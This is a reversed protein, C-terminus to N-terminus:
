PKRWERELISYWAVDCYCGKIWESSRLTGEYQMGCKEMVRGSAPNRIDHRAEVRQMGVKDFLFDIVARAALTTYGKGWWSRGICYGIQARASRTDSFVVSISGIPKGLERPVIAWQYFDKNKYSSCWLQLVQRTQEPSEHPEWMLYRCVEPDSAWNAFVARDDDPSFRRLLLGPATLKKTGLHRVSADEEKGGQITKLEGMMDGTFSVTLTNQRLSLQREGLDMFELKGLPKDDYAVYPGIGM